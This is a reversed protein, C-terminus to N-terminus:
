HHAGDASNREFAGYASPKMEFFRRKRRAGALKYAFTPRNHEHAYGGHGGISSVSLPSKVGAVVRWRKMKPCVGRPM